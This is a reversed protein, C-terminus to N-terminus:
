TRAADSWACSAHQEVFRAVSSARAGDDTADQELGCGGCQLTVRGTAQDLRVTFLPQM